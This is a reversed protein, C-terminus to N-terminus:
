TLFDALVGMQVLVQIMQKFSLLCIIKRYDRIKLNLKSIDDKILNWGNTNIVLYKDDPEIIYSINKITSDNKSWLDDYFNQLVAGGNKADLPVLTKNLITYKNFSCSTILSLIVFILINIKKM